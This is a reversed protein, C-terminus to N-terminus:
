PHDGNTPPHETSDVDIIGDPILGPPLMAAAETERRRIEALAALVEVEPDPGGGVDGELHVDVQQRPAWQDPYRRELLWTLVRPNPQSRTVTRTRATVRETAQGDRDYIIESEERLTVSMIGGEGIEQLKALARHELQLAADRAALTFDACLRQNATLDRRKAGDARRDLATKGTRLWKRAAAEAVGALDCANPLTHGAALLTIIAEGATMTAGNLTTTHTIRLPRGTRPM